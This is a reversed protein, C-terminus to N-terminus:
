NKIKKAAVLYYNPKLLLDMAILKRDHELHNYCDIIDKDSVLQAIDQPVGIWSDIQLGAESLLPLIDDMSVTKENVHLFQDVLWAENEFAFELSARFDDEIDSRPANFHCTMNEEPLETLAIKALRVKEEITEVNNFLVRFFRQNLNLRFRGYTGYLWLILTGDDKLHKALQRMGTNMDSLHHLVGINLVVDYQKELDMTLINKELLELNDLARKAKRERAINLSAPTLDVGTFASSPFMEALASITTGTGCGAEMVSADSLLSKKGDKANQSFYRLLQIGYSLQYEANPFPYKLYLDKVDKTIDKKPDEQETTM